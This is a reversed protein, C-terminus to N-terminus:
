PLKVPGQFSRLGGEFWFFTRTPTPLAVVWPETLEITSLEGGPPLVLSDDRVADGVVEVFDGEPMKLVTVLRGASFGIVHFKEVQIQLPGGPQEPMVTEMPRAVNVYTLGGIIRQAVPEGERGPSCQFGASDMAAAAAGVKVLGEELELEKFYERTVPETTMWVLGTELDTVEMVLDRGSRVQYAGDNLEEALQREIDSNANATM